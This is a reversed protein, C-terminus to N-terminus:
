NEIFLDDAVSALLTCAHLVGSIIHINEALVSATVIESLLERVSSVSSYALWALFLGITAGCLWQGFFIQFLLSLNEARRVDPRRVIKWLTSYIVPSVADNLFSEGNM